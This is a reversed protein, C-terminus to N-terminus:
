ASILRNGSETMDDSAKFVKMQMEFSRNLSMTAIMEEVASVNSGELHRDSVRVTPDAQLDEGNRAVVLGAENKTLEGTEANVLKLKDIIQMQASGPVQVSITGDVGISVSSNEPLTIPGGEGLVARGNISLTGNEDLNMAGSRTYAEGNQWQVTLYGNGVIAVDLDRGTEKLTGSRTSIASSQTQAMHRDDYGYGNQLPQATSVELNARFGGTEINALNNAHVQQARLARDAGSMATYILADM